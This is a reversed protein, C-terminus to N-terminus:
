HSSGGWDVHEGFKRQQCISYQKNVREVSVEGLRPVRSKGQAEGALHRVTTPPRVSRPNPEWSQQRRATHGHALPKVERFRLMRLLLLLFMFM